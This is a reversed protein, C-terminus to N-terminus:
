AQRHRMAGVILARLGFDFDVDPALQDAVTRARALTPASAADPVMTGTDARQAHAQEELVWGVTYRSIALLTRLADDPSLGHDVLASLLRDLEPLM